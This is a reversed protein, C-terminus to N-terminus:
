GWEVKVIGQIIVPNKPAIGRASFSAASISPHVRRKAIHLTMMGTAHGPKM